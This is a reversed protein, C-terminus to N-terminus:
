EAFRYGIGWSTLIYEPKNPHREIKMRLRNIHSTVTSEYGPFGIGWIMGLLQRRTFSRGPNSALLYLLEFEKATLELRTNDITAKRLEYDVRINHFVITAPPPNDGASANAETRRLVAKIRALLELVGFPKTIYDDAGLDLALVKDTEENRATLMIIPASVKAERIKKCIEMGNMGPLMIDLIMLQFDHNNAYDLATAGDHFNRLQYEPPSLHLKLLQTIQPDDEVLIVKMM